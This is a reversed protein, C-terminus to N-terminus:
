RLDYGEESKGLDTPHHKWVLSWFWLKENAVKVAKPKKRVIVVETTTLQERLDSGHEVGAEELLESEVSAGFYQAVKGSCLSKLTEELEERDPFAEPSIAIVAVADVYLPNGEGAEYESYDVVMFYRKEIGILRKIFRKTEMDRLYLYPKGRREFWLIEDGTDDDTIVEFSM